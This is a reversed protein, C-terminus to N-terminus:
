LYFLLLYLHLLLMQSPYFSMLPGSPMIPLAHISFKYRIELLTPDTSDLIAPNVDPSSQFLCACVIKKIKNM